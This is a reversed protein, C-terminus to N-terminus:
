GLRKEIAAAVALATVGGMVPLWVQEKQERVYLWAGALLCAFGSLVLVTVLHRQGASPKPRLHETM